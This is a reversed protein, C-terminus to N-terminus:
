VGFGTHGDRSGQSKGRGGQKAVVASYGGRAVYQASYGGRALYQATNM